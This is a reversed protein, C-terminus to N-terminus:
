SALGNITTCGKHHAIAVGRKSVNAASRIETDEVSVFLVLFVEGRNQSPEKKSWIRGVSVNRVAIPVNERKPM